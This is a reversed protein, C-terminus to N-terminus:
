VFLEILQDVKWAFLLLDNLIISNYEVSLVAAWDLFIKRLRYLLRAKSLPSIAIIEIISWLLVNILRPLAFLGLFAKFLGLSGALNSVLGDGLQELEELILHCSADIKLVLLFQKRVM